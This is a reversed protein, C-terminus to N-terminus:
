VTSFPQRGALPRPVFIASVERTGQCRRFWVWLEPKSRTRLYFLKLTASFRCQSVLIEALVVVPFVIWLRMRSKAATGGLQDGATKASSLIEDHERSLDRSSIGFFIRGMPRMKKSRHVTNLLHPSHAGASPRTIPNATGYKANNLSATCSGVFCLLTVASTSSNSCPRCYPSRRTTHPSSDKPQQSQLSAEVRRGFRAQSDGPASM